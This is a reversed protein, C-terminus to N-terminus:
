NTAITNNVVNITNVDEIPMGVLPKQLISTVIRTSDSLSKEILVMDGQVSIINVRARGLKSSDDVFYIQSDNDVVNRPITAVNPITRGEILVRVYNGPFLHQNLNENNLSVFVNISQSNRDLQNENRYIRGYTWSDQDNDWYVKVKPNKTFDIWKADELLLPVSIEINTVDQLSVLKQGYNVYSDKVIGNSTIYGDFPAFITHKSLTIEANKVAFFQTFINNNIAQNKERSDTMEPLDKIPENIDLENSYKSWKNYLEDSESNTFALFSILVRMFEAYQSHFTNEAQRPDIKCIIEGKKVYTGSKLDNKAFTVIGQVESIIDVTKQPEITGNGEIKLQVDDHTLLQTEVKRVEQIIDRKTTQKNSSGLMKMGFVGVILIIVFSSIKFIINKKNG